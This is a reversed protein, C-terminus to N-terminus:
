WGNGFQSVGDVLVANVNEICTNNGIRYNAIYNHINYLHCNDGVQCNHIMAHNIGSHVKVGGPLEFEREFVGLRIQGSFHADQVYRADFGEKVQVNVWDDATCHQAQLQEIELETIARYNM